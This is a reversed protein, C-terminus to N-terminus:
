NIENRSRFSKNCAMKRQERPTINFQRKYTNAFNASYEYGVEFAIQQITMKSNVLLSKAKLMRQERLWEFVSQGMVQKFTAALSSRNSGMCIAIDDLMLKDELHQQLYVCTNQVLEREDPDVDVINQITPLDTPDCQKNCQSHYSYFMALATTCRYLLEEKIIPLAFYDTAGLEYIEHRHDANTQNAVM